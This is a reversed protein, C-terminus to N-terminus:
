DRQIIPAWMKYGSVAIWYDQLTIDCAAVGGLWHKQYNTVGTPRIATLM